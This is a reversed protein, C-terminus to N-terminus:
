NEMDNQNLKAKRRYKGYKDESSFKAPKPTITALHCNPCILKLTYTKCINCKYINNAM